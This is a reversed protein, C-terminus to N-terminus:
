MVVEDMEHVNKGEYWEERLIGMRISDYYIGKYLRCKRLQGELHMGLKEAVRMMRKNGSWTALGIRVLPLENLLYDIWLRLAETGYGGNWYSPNYISIGVELWNSEKHVWYYSVTGIIENNAQIIVRSNPQINGIRYLAAKQFEDFPIFELPEYPADLKTWEADADGYIQKYLEQLDDERISRLLVHDGKILIPDFGM